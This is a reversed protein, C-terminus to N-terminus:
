RKHVEAGEVPGKILIEHEYSHDPSWEFTYPSDPPREGKPLRLIVGDEGAFIKAVPVPRRQGADGQLDAVTVGLQDLLQLAIDIRGRATPM